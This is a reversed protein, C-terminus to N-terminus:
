GQAVPSSVPHTYPPLRVASTSSSPSCTGSSMSSRFFCRTATGARRSYWGTHAARLSRLGRPPSSHAGPARIRERYVRPARTLATEHLWVMGVDPSGVTEDVYVVRVDLSGVTEDVYAVRVDPSGVTEDVYVGRVDLSGVTEDVYVVRVDLSGVTEDVYVMSVDVFGPDADVFGPDADM